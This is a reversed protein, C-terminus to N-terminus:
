LLRVFRLAFHEFFTKRVHGFRLYVAEKPVVPSVCYPSVNAVRKTWLKRKWGLNLIGKGLSEISRHPPPLSNSM